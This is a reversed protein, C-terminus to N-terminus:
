ICVHRWTKGLKISSIQVKNVNFERALAAGKEGVALRKKIEMVQEENLKALYCKSGCNSARIKEKTADPTVKGFNHNKSGKQADGIKRKREETAPTGKYGVLGRNWCKKNARQEATHKYGFSNKNGKMREAIRERQEKTKVVGSAGEGGNSHNCLLYGDLRFQAILKIEESFAQKESECKFVAIKINEKGYKAVIRKHHQSRLTFNHSRNGIGKDVYFPTGDPKYHVYVYFQKM